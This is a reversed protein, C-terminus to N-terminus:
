AHRLAEVPLLNSATRAPWYGSVLGIAVAGALGLVTGGVSVEVQFPSWASLLWVTAAGLAVGMMGGALGIMAAEMLFQIRVAVRSAGIARKLGIERTREIVSTMMINMIALGGVILSVSAAVVGIASVGGLIRNATEIYQLMTDGKYNFVGHHRERLSRALAGTAQGATELSAAQAHLYTVARTNGLIRQCTTFPILVRGGSDEAANSLSSILERNKAELVGIVVFWEDKLLFSQGVAAADGFLQRRTEPGIVAVRARRDVEDASFFRGLALKENGIEAYQENVGSLKVNVHVGRKHAAVKEGGSEVVPSLATVLKPHRARLAHYDDTDIAGSADRELRGPLQPARYIWISRLGFTELERFIMARGSTGISSVAVIAAIGIAIGFLSLFTRLTNERLSELAEALLAPVPPPRYHAMRNDAM